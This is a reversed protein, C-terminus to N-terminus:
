IEKIKCIIEKAAAQGQVKVKDAEGYNELTMQKLINIKEEREKVVLRALIVEAEKKKVKKSM